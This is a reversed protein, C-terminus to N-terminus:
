KTLIVVYVRDWAGVRGYTVGIGIKTEFRNLLHRRHGLDPVGDDIIFQSISNYVDYNWLISEYYPMTSHTLEVNDYLVQSYVQARSALHNDWHLTPLPEIYGLDLGMSTGYYLPNSRVSNLELLLM